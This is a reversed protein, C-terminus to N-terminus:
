LWRALWSLAGLFLCYGAFSWGARPAPAHSDLVPLDGTFGRACLAFAITDARQVCRLMLSHGLALALRVRRYGRAPGRCTAARRLSQAQESIELLWHLALYTIVRVTRPVRVRRMAVLLEGPSLLGSLVTFTLVALGTKSLLAWLALRAAGPPAYPAPRTSLGGRYLGAPGLLVMLALVLLGAVLIPTLRLAMTRIRVGHTWGAVLLLGLCLGQAWYAATPLAVVVVATLLGAILRLHPPWRRLGHPTAAPEPPPLYAVAMM